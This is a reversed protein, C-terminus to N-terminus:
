RGGGGGGMRGKRMEDGRTREGGKGIVGTGIGGGRKGETGGGGRVGGSERWLEGGEGV